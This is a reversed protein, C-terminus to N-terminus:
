PESRPAVVLRYGLDLQELELVEGYRERWAGTALDSALRALGPAPDALKHFTSIAARVAAELYAEPRRWYAGLFGDTCDAPIPVSRVELPGLHRELEALSPFIRRDIDLLDPFYDTLWFGPAAPDWTWLVVPGRAVRRLEDLGRGRDPWHHVTLIALAADFSG